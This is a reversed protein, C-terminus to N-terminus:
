RSSGVTMQGNMAVETAEPEMGADIRGSGVVEDPLEILVPLQYTTSVSVVPTTRRAVTM